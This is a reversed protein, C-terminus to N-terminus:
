WDQSAKPRDRSGSRGGFRGSSRGGSRGGERGGFRGGRGSPRAGGTDNGSTDRATAVDVRLLRGYMEIGNLESVAKSAEEASSFDIHGFGKSRGTDRDTAIRIKKVVGLGILDDTMTKIDETTIEFPLNGIFVSHQDQQQNRKPLSTRLPPPSTSRTSTYEFETQTIPKRIGNAREITLLRGMVELQGNLLLAKTVFEEESFDVHGFGKSRGDITGIRCKIPIRYQNDQTPEEEGTEINIEGRSMETRFIEEVDRESLSYDLNGVFISFDKSTEPARRGKTPGDIGEDLDVKLLRDGIELGTLKEVAQEAQEVTSYELFGFGRSKKTKFNVPIRSSLLGESVLNKEALDRLNNEDFSFPLNGIFVLRKSSKSDNSSEDFVESNEGLSEDNWNNYLYLMSKPSKLTSKRSCYTNFSDNLVLLIFFLTFSTLSLKM